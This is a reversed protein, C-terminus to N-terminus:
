VAQELVVDKFSSDFWDLLLIIKGELTHEFQQQQYFAWFATILPSVLPSM